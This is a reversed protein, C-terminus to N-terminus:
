APENLRNAIAELITARLADSLNTVQVHTRFWEDGRQEVLVGFLEDAFSDSITRVGSFDLRTIDCDAEIAQRLAAARTRSSIDVGIDTAICITKM